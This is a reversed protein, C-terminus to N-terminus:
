ARRLAIKMQYFHFVAAEAASGDGLREYRDLVDTIFDAQEAAPVKRTWEVFTVQAFAAFAARSGFDWSELAVDLREVRLGCREALRRYEEPPLHLYPAQHGAFHRSWRPSACAEEIVDELSTRTGRSVFRLVARGETVNIREGRFMADRREPVGCEEALAVLLRLTEDTVRHKSYDVYLGCAEAALREGRGPDSAFLDRLHLDGVEAFHAELAKWAARERLPASAAM